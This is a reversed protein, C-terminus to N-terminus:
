MKYFRMETCQMVADTQYVTKTILLFCSPFRLLSASYYFYSKVYEYVPSYHGQGVRGPSGEGQRPGLVECLGRPSDAGAGAFGFCPLDGSGM